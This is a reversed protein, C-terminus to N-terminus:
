KAVEETLEKVRSFYHKILYLETQAMPEDESAKELTWATKLVIDLMRVKHKLDELVKRPVLKRCVYTKGKRQEKLPSPCGSQQGLPRSVRKSFESIIVRM